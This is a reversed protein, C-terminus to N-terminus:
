AMGWVETGPICRRRVQCGWLAAQRAAGCPFRSEIGRCTYRHPPDGVVGSVVLHHAFVATHCPGMVVNLILKYGGGAGRVDLAGIGFRSHGPVSVAIVLSIDKDSQRTGGPRKNQINAHRVWVRARSFILRTGHLIRVRGLAAGVSLRIFGLAVREQRNDASRIATLMVIEDAELIDDRASLGFVDDLV